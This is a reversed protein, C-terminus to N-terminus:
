SLDQTLAQTLALTLALPLTLPLSLTLALELRRVGQRRQPGHAAHAAAVAHQMM